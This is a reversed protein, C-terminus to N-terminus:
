NDKSLRVRRKPQNVYRNDQVDDTKLGDLLAKKYDMNIAESKTDVLAVRDRGPAGLIRGVGVIFEAIGNWNQFCLLSPTDPKMKVDFTM